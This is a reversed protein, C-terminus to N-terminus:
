NLSLMEECKRLCDNDKSKFIKFIKSVRVLRYLRPLRVLRILNNYGGGGEEEGNPNIAWDFPFFSIFDPIM